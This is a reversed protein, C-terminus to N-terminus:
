RTTNGSPGAVAPLALLVFLALVGLPLTVLFWRVPDRAKKRALIISLIGTCFNCFLITVWAM